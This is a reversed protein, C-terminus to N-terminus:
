PRDDADGENQGRHEHGRNENGADRPPEVLLEGHRDGDRHENRGEVSQAKTGRKGREQKTRAPFGPPRQASEEVPEIADIAAGGVAVNAYAARQDALCGDAQDKETQYSDRDTPKAFLQGRAKQGFLILPVYENSHLKGKGGGGFAGVCDASLDLIDQPLSRTDFMVSGHNSVAEEAAHAIRVAGKKPHGSLFPALARLRFLSEVGDLGM